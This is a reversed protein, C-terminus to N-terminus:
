QWFMKLEFLINQSLSNNDWLLWVVKQFFFNLSKKKDVHLVIEVDCLLTKFNCFLMGYAFIANWYELSNNGKIQFCKTKM